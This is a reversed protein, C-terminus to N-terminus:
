NHPSIILATANDVGGNANVKGILRQCIEEARMNPALILSLIESDSLMKTLGDTCLLMIDQAELRVIQGDPISDYGVGLAKLLVNQRRHTRAQESTIHGEAILQEVLSHDKTLALIQGDRILYARSDGVHAVAAAPELGSCLFVGVITTGMGNFDPLESVREIIAESGAAIAQTLITLREENSCNAQPMSTNQRIYKVITAVALESAVNGGAQGGMGDAVVWLGIQNDIGFADQNSSRVRGADSLATGAWGTCARTIYMSSLLSWSKALQTLRTWNM